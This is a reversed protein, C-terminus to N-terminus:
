YLHNTRDWFIPEKLGAEFSSKAGKQYTCISGSSESSNLYPNNNICNCLLELATTSGIYGGSCFGGLTYSTKLVQPYGITTISNFRDQVWDICWQEQNDTGSVPIKSVKVKRPKRTIRNFDIAEDKNIYIEPDYSEFALQTPNSTISDLIAIDKLYPEIVQSFAKHRRKFEKKSTCLPIKILAHVNKGSSSYWSAVTHELSIFFEKVKKHDTCDDIDMFLLGTYGVINIHLRGLNTFSAFVNGKRKIKRKNNTDNKISKLVENLLRSATKEKAFANEYYDIAIKM